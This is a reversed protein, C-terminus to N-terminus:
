ESVVGTGFLHYPANIKVLVDTKADGATSGPRDVMGVIKFGATATQAAGVAMVSKKTTVNTTAANTAHQATSFTCNQGIATDAISGTSQVQYTVNPDTVVYATIKTGTPVTTGTPFLQDFILQGVSNVYECGVFVGAAGGGNVAFNNTTADAGSGTAVEIRGGDLKVLTGYAINNALGSAIEFADRAGSYPSGDANKVPILGYPSATTAM